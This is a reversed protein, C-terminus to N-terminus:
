RYEELPTDLINFLERPVLTEQYECFLRLPLDIKGRNWRTFVHFETNSLAEIQFDLLPTLAEGRLRVTERLREMRHRVM